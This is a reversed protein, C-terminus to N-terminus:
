ANNVGKPTLSWLSPISRILGGALRLYRRQRCIYGDDELERLCQFLWSRGIHVDYFQTLLELIKNISVPTHTKKGQDICVFLTILISSKSANLM